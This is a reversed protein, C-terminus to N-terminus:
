CTLTHPWTELKWYYSLIADYCESFVMRAGGRRQPIEGLNGRFFYWQQDPQVFITRSGPTSCPRRGKEVGREKMRNCGFSMITDLYVPKSWLQSAAPRGKNLFNWLSRLVGSRYIQLGTTIIAASALRGTRENGTVGAHGLYCIWPLRQLRLSHLAAHWDSLWAVRTLCQKKCCTSQDTPIIASTTYTDSQTCSPLGSCQTAHSGRGKHDSQLYQGHLCWQRQTCARRRARCYVWM